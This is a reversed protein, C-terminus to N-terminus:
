RWTVERRLVPIVQGDRKQVVLELHCSVRDNDIGARSVIRFFESKVLCYQGIVDAEFESIGTDARVQPLTKFPHDDATGPVGDDGDRIKLISKLSQETLGPITKLVEAPATNINIKGSGYVTLLDRLGRQQTQAQTGSPAFTAGGAIRRAGMPRGADADTGYFMADTVGHVLLLEEVSQLPKNKAQYPVTLSSYYRAEAGNRREDTDADTWDQISAAAEETLGPLTMWQTAEAKNLNVKSEEDLCTALITQNGAYRLRDDRFWQKDDM